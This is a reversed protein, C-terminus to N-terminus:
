QFVIVSGTKLNIPAQFSLFASNSAVNMYEAWVWNTSRAVAAIRTEDLMGKFTDGWHAAGLYLDAGSVPGGANVIPAGVSAGDVLFQGNAGSRTYVVYKWVGNVTDMVYTSDHWNGNDWLQLKTGYVAFIFGASGTNYTGLFGRDGTNTSLIWAGVTYDAAMNFAANAPVKIYGSSGLVNNASAAMGNGPTVAGQAVGNFRNATADLANTQGMHWVGVFGQSWTAGNTGYSPPETVTLPNGYFAWIYDNTSALQDVQVWVYSNSATDWKEIEYNLTRSLDASTFRLDYGNTSAFSNYKFGSLGPGLVVLAPFNTLTEARNYGTFQIKLKRSFEHWNLRTRFSAATPSWQGGNANVAYFRYYYVTDGHLGGVATTVAGTGLYGLAASAAWNGANTGGDTTGWYAYVQTPASGTSTLVGNLWAGTATVNTAGGGNNIVPDASVFQLQISGNNYVINTVLIQGAVGGVWTVSRFTKGSFNDNPSSVITLTQQDLQEVTPVVKLQLDCNAITAALGGRTCALQDYDTGAVGGYGRVDIILTSDAAFEMRGNITFLGAANVNTGPQVTRGPVNLTYTASGDQVQLVGIGGFNNQLVWNTTAPTTNLYVGGSYPDASAFWCDGSGLANTSEVYLRNWLITVGGSFDANTGSLRFVQTDQENRAADITLRGSGVITGGYRFDPGWPRGDRHGYFSSNATMYLHGGLYQSQGDLGNGLTGGQMEIEWDKVTRNVGEGWAKYIWLEGGVPVIVRAPTPANTQHSVINLANRVLVTGTGLAGDAYLNLAPLGGAGYGAISGVQIDWGGSFNPSAFNLNMGATGTGRLAIVGTNTVGGQVWDQFSGNFSMTQTDRTGGGIMSIQSNAKVTVSNYPQAATGNNILQLVGGNLLLPAAQLTNDAFYLTGTKSGNTTINIYRMGPIAFASATVTNSAITASDDPNVPYGTNPKWTANVNWAANNTAVFDIPALTQFNTLGAWAEVGLANSAYYSYYYLTSYQLGTARTTLYTQFPINAGLFYNTQWLSKDTNSPGGTAGNTGLYVWVATAAGGTSVLYGNLSAAYATIGTAGGNNNIAISLPLTAFATAQTAWADGFANTAYCRYVYGAGDLLGTVNATFLGVGQPNGVYAVGDWGNTSPYQDQRGYYIRVEAPAAGTSSLLGQLTASNYLVNTAGGTNSIVPTDPAPTYDVFLVPEGRVGYERLYYNYNGSSDFNVCFGFNSCVGSSWLAAIDSVAFVIPNYPDGGGAGTPTKLNGATDTGWSFAANANPGWSYWPTATGGDANQNNATQIGNPHAWSAGRAAPAAGPYNGNKNGESWARTRIYDAYRYGSNGNSQYLLFQARNITAGAFRPLNTLAFGFLSIGKISGGSGATGYNYWAQGSSLQADVQSNTYITLTGNTAAVQFASDPVTKSTIDNTPIKWTAMIAVLQGEMFKYASPAWGEGWLNTAYCRFYYPGVNTVNVVSVTFAGSQTGAAVVNQWAGTGGSTGADVTGWCVYAQPAPNGGIVQGKLTARMATNSLVGVNVVIPSSFTTFSASSGALANTTDNAAYYRYSYTTNNALGTLYTTYGAPCPQTNLGLANTNGWAALNTGADTTGWYLTVSAASTGNSSLLGNLFASTATINTAALNAIVPLSPDLPTATGYTQFATTNSAMNMYTAWIWNSSRQASSVRLEDYNGVSYTTAHRGILTPNGLASPNGATALSLAKTFVGDVYLVANTASKVGVLHHWKGDTLVAPSSDPKTDGMSVRVLFGLDSPGIWGLGWAYTQSANPGYNGVINCYWAAASSTNVWAEAVLNSLQLSPRNSCDVYCGATGSFYRSAAAMGNTLLTSAAHGSETGHNGNTTSDNLSAGLHWVAAYGNSWAAGNTACVATSQGAAGWYALITTNSSLAPVQVWVHSNGAVDWREIEYNLNTTGTVDAFALDNSGSQFQSYAFGSINTGLVVLAPFNTLTEAKNYGAFQIAAQYSFGSAHLIPAIHPLCLAVLLLALGTGPLVGV